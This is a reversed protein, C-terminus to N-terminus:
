KKIEQVKAPYNFVLQKGKAIDKPFLKGDMRPVEFQLVGDISFFGLTVFEAGGSLENPIVKLVIVKTYM